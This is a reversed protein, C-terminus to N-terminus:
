REIVVHYFVYDGGSNRFCGFPKGALADTGNHGQKGLLTEGAPLASASDMDSRYSASLDATSDPIKKIGVEGNINQCVTKKIGPLFATLENGALAAETSVGINDVEFALNFFWRGPKGDAMIDAPATQYAANGGVPAFVGRTEQGALAGSSPEDFLLEDVAVGNVVMRVVATRIVAPYQILPATSIHGAESAANGAGSRVSGTLEYILAVLLILAIPILFIANGADTRGKKIKGIDQSMM